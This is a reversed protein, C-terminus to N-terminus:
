KIDEKLESWWYQESAIKLTVEYARHVRDGCHGEVAIRLKLDTPDDPIWIRAGEKCVDEKMANVEAPARHKEQEDVIEATTVIDTEESSSIIYAYFAAARQASTRIYSNSWQILIDSLVNQSGQIHDIFFEFWSLHIAWRQLKSLVHRTSNPQLANPAFDFLLNWFDSFVHVPQAGWFLYDKRDFTQVIAYAERESITWNRQTWSLRGGLFALPKHQEVDANKVLVKKETQAVIEEWFEEPSNTSAWIVHGDKPFALSVAQRLSNQKSARKTNHGTGWSLRHM